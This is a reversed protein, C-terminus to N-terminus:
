GGRRGFSHAAPAVSRLSSPDEETSWTRRPEIHRVEAGPLDPRDLRWIREVVVNTTGDRHELRGDAMVLPEARIATRCRDFVPPTVILNVTGLEDELLMFTMGNATAPRQRAVVLGAVRVRARDPLRELGVSTVVEEGLSPRM